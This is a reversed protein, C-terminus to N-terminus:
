AEKQKIEGRANRRARVVTSCDLEIGNYEVTYWGGHIRTVGAAKIIERASQGSGGFDSGSEIQMTKM